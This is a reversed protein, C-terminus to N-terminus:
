KKSLKDQLLENKEKESVILREYLEVVKEIPNFTFNSNNVGFSAVASSHDNFTNFYTNAAEENFNRIAAVPVKLVKSVQELLEPEVTEKGELLSIKKQNWDEGLEFALAEQKMGLMERFRKINKGEHVKNPMDTHTM